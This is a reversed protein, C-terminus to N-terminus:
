RRDEIRESSIKADITRFAQQVVEEVTIRKMCRHDIPCERLLCPSCEVRKNLVVSAPSMPGTAIEDTAGFIALTPVRLAAALHMPGSDNTLFLDCCAIMAILESLETRGSLIVPRSRMGSQIAEAIAVENPSGFIVVSAQREDILRDLVMAYRESLWRKASGYFAGPNVGVVTRNFDVGQSQLRIRGGQKREPSVALTIDPMTRAVFQSTPKPELGQSTRACGLLQELLDLYYYTQHLKSVHPAVPVKHSLLRGRGDRDYGARVPIKALWTLVAAEFANQFLLAADFRRERLERILRLKGSLGRHVGQRDYLWIDDVATSDEYIGAVWPLVLLTIKAQPFEVRARKLAPLSLISDGVWNTGRILLRRVNRPDFAKM